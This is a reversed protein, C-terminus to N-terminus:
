AKQERRWDELWIRAGLAQPGSGRGAREIISVCRSAYSSSPGGLKLLQFALWTDAPPEDLLPLLEGIASPGRRHADEAIAHMEDAAANHQRVSQKSGYDTRECINACERYRDIPAM